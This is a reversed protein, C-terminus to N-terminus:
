GESLVVDAPFSRHGEFVTLVSIGSREVRYVIRYSGLVVERVDDREVEPVRRGAGPAAAAERARVRLKEVWRRAARRDDRAIYRGITVLDARARLAWRLRAARSV